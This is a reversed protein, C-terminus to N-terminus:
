EETPEIFELGECADIFPEISCNPFMITPTRWGGYTFRYEGRDGRHATLAFGSRDVCIVMLGKDVLEKLRKYDKSTTYGKM